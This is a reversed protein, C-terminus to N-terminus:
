TMDPGFRFYVCFASPFCAAKQEWDSRNHGFLYYHLKMSARSKPCHKVWVIATLEAALLLLVMGSVKTPRRM